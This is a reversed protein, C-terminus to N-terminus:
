FPMKFSLKRHNSLLSSPLYPLYIKRIGLWSSFFWSFPMGEVENAGAGQLLMIAVWNLLGLLQKRECSWCNGNWEICKSPSICCPKQPFHQLFLQSPQEIAQCKRNGVRWVALRWKRKIGELLPSGNSFHFSYFCVMSTFNFSCLIDPISNVFVCALPCFGSIIFFSKINSFLLSTFSPFFFGHPSPGILGVSWGRRHFVIQNITRALDAVPWLAPLAFLIIPLYIEKTFPM